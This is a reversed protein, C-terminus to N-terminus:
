LNEKIVRSVEEVDKLDLGPYCPLSLIEKCWKESNPLCENTGWSARMKHLPIPFHVKTEIGKDSLVQKLRDRDPHKIVFLHYLSEGKIVVEKPLLGEYTKAIIRREVLWDDLHKLKVKLIASQIEDMRSTIQREDRFVDDRGALNRMKVMLDYDNTTVAGADGMAGLSKTPYFSWCAVRDGPEWGHCHCADFLKCDKEKDSPLRGYLLVPVDSAAIGNEAIDVVKVETGGRNLGIATLSLTNAQVRATKIEMASAALTLADTGSACSVCYSQGCYAAWVKEFSETEQGRLYQSSNVVRSISNEIEKLIPVHCKSLDNFRIM